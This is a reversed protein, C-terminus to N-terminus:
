IWKLKRFYWLLAFSLIILLGCFIAFSYPFDAGPIGAINVGLLGTLFGLPLFVAAVVSLLLMNRNMEEARKDTLQDNLIGCRERVADLEEVMRTIRDAIERLSIGVNKSFLSASDTSLRAIAERQPAIYRRLMITTRRKDALDARLGDATEISRDELEDVEDSLDTIVRDMREILGDALAVIFDGATKPGKGKELAERIAVVAMLKRRRVSIILKDQVWIRISVMDEPDSEPNLNVGRFMLLMGDDHPTCRPRIDDLTLARAVVTDEHAAIWDFLQPHAMDLHIWRYATQRGAPKGLDAATLSTAKGDPGVDFAYLLSGTIDIDPM